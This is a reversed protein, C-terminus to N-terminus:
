WLLAAVERGICAIGGRNLPRVFLCFLDPEPMASFRACRMALRQEPWDSAQPQALRAAKMKRASWYLREALRLRQVGTM